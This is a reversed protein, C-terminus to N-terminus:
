NITLDEFNVTCPLLTYGRPPMERYGQVVVGLGDRFVVEAREPWVRVERVWQKLAARAELVEESQVARRMEAVVRHLEDYDIEVQAIERQHLLEDKRRELAALEAERAQLRAQTPVGGGAEVAELLNRLVPGLRAIEESLRALDADIQPDALAARLGDLMQLMTTESLVQDLVVQVAVAEPHEAKVRGIECAENRCRYSRFVADRKRGGHTDLQGVLLRGCEGCRALGSLLYPSNIRRAVRAHQARTQLRAQVAEFTAEDVLPPLHGPFEEAGLKLIGLYTRNRLMSAYSEKAGLLNVARHIEEYSAGQAAMQFAQRVRPAVAEDIVWRAALREKGDRRNGAPVREARYGIPPRGGPALGAAVNARLGKRVEYSMQDLAIRAATDLMTEIVMAYPGVGQPGNVSVVQVGNRRLETRYTASDYEDRGWRTGSSTIVGDVPPPTKRCASILDRFADRREYDGSQRAEDIYWAVINLGRELCYRAIEAQQESVSRDQGAGGSDRCYAFVRDGPQLDRITM